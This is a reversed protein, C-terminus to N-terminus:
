SFILSKKDVKFITKSTSFVKFVVMWILIDSIELSFIQPPTENYDVLLVNLRQILLNSYLIKLEVMKYAELRLTNWCPINVDWSPILTM